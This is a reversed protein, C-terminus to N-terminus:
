PTMKKGLEQKEKKAKNNEMKIKQHLRDNEKWARAKEKKARNQDM